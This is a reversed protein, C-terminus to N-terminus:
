IEMGSSDTESNLQMLEQYLKAEKELLKQIQAANDQSINNTPLQEAKATSAAIIMLAGLVMMSTVIKNTTDFM